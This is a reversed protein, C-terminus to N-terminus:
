RKKGDDSVNRELRNLLSLLSNMNDAENVGSSLIDDLNVAVNRSDAILQDMIEAFYNPASSIVLPMRM